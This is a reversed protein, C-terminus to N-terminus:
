IIEQLDQLHHNQLSIIEKKSFKAFDRFFNKKALVRVQFVEEIRIVMPSPFHVTIQRSSFKVTFVKMGNKWREQIWTWIFHLIEHNEKVQCILIPKVTTYSQSTEVFLEKPESFKKKETTIRCNKLGLFYRSSTNKDIDARSRSTCNSFGDGGFGGTLWVENLVNEPCHGHHVKLIDVVSDKIVSDPPLYKSILTDKMFFDQPQKSPMLEDIKKPLLNYSPLILYESLYHRLNKYQLKTMKLNIKYQIAIELPVNFRFTSM